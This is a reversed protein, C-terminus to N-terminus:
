IESSVAFVLRIGCLSHKRECQCSMSKAFSCDIKMLRTRRRMAHIIFCTPWSYICLYLCGAVCVHRSNNQSQPM